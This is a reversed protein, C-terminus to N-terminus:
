SRSPRVLMRFFVCNTEPLTLLYSSLCTLNKSLILQCVYTASSPIRMNPDVKRSQAADKLDETVAVSISSGPLNKIEENNILHKSIATTANISELDMSDEISPAHPTIEATAM